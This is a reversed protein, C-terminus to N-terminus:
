HSSSPFSLAPLLDGKWTFPILIRIHWDGNFPVLIRIHWFPLLVEIPRKAVLFKSNDGIRSWWEDNQIGGFTSFVRKVFLCTRPLALM